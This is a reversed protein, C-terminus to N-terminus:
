VAFLKPRRSAGEPMEDPGAELPVPAALLCLLLCEGPPVILLPPFLLSVSSCDCKLGMTVSYMPSAILPGRVLFRFCFHV